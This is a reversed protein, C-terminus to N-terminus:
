YSVGRLCVLRELGDSPRLLSSEVKQRLENRTLILLADFKSEAPKPGLRNRWFASRQGSHALLNRLQDKQWQEHAGRNGTEILALEVIGGVIQGPVIDLSVESFDFM